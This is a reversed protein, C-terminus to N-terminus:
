ANVEQGTRSWRQKGWAKRQSRKVWPLTLDTLGQIRELNDSRSWSTSSNYVYVRHENVIVLSSKSVASNHLLVTQDIKIYFWNSSKHLSTNPSLWKEFEICRFHLVKRFWAFNDEWETQIEAKRVQWEDQWKRKWNWAVILKLFWIWSHKCSNSDSSYEIWSM